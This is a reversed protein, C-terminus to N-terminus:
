VAYSIKVHSSNLRTSKRDQVLVLVYRGAHGRRGFGPHAAVARPRGTQHATYAVARRGADFRCVAALVTRLFARAAEIPGTGPLASPQGHCDMGHFNMLTRDM